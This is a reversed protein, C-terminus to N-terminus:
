ASSNHQMTTKDKTNVAHLTPHAQYINIMTSDINTSKNRLERYKHRLASTQGGIRGFTSTLGQATTFHNM